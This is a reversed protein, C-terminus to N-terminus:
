RWSVMRNGKRMSSGQYNAPDKLPNSSRLYRLLSMSIMKEISLMLYAGGVIAQDVEGHKISQCALNLATLSSSCATDVTMSPGKLDFFYSLRNSLISEASGTAAYTPITELDKNSLYLYEAGNAGVFVGTASGAIKQIPIGGPSSILNM